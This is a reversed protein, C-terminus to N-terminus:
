RRLNSLIKKKYQSPVGKDFILAIKKTKPSLSKIKLSLLNLINNGILISYNKNSVKFKIKQVKM